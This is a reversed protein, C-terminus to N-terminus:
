AAVTRQTAAASHCRVIVNETFSNMMGAHELRQAAAKSQGWGADVDTLTRRGAITGGAFCAVILALWLAIVLKPRRASARAAGRVFRALGRPGNGPRPPGPRRRGDRRPTKPLTTSM